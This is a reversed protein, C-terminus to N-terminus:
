GVDNECRKQTGSEQQKSALCRRRLRTFGLFGRGNFQVGEHAVPLSLEGSGAAFGSRQRRLHDSIVIPDVVSTKKGGEALPHFRQGLHLSFARSFGDIKGAAAPFPHNAAIKQEAARPVAAAECHIFGLAAGGGEARRRGVACYYQKVAAIKGFPLM